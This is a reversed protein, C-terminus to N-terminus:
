ESRGTGSLDAGTKFRILEKEISDVVETNKLGLIMLADISGSINEIGRSIEQVSARTVSSLSDIDEMKGAIELLNSGISSLVGNINRAADDLKGLSDTVNRNGKTITELTVIFGSFSESLEVILAIFSRITGYTDTAKRETDDMRTRLAGLSESIHKANDKTQEALKRIEGAIVTFGKGASGAHAAEISANMALLDTRDAVENIMVIMQAIITTSERVINMSAIASEIGVRGKEAEISLTSIRERSAKTTDSLSTISGIIGGIDATSTEIVAAQNEITRNLGEVKTKIDKVYANSDKIRSNLTDSKTNIDEIFTIIGSVTHSHEASSTALAESIKKNVKYISKIGRIIDHVNTVFLDLSAALDGIEDKGKVSSRATLDGSSLSQVFSFIREIRSLVVKRLGLFIAVILSLTLLILQIVIKLVSFSLSDSVYRDTTTIEVYGIITSEDTYEDNRTVTRKDTKYFFKKMSQLVSENLEFIMGDPNKIKEVLPNEKDDMVRISITTREGLEFEVLKEISDTNGYFLPEILTFSLRNGLAVTTGDLASYASNKELFFSVIGFATMLMFLLGLLIALVKVSISNAFRVAM